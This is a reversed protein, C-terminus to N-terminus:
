QLQPLTVKIRTMYHICTYQSYFTTCLAIVAYIYPKYKNYECICIRIHICIYIYRYLIHLPLSANYSIVHKFAYNKTCFLTNFISNQTNTNGVGHPRQLSTISPNYRSKSYDDTATCKQTKLKCESVQKQNYAKPIWLYTQKFTHRDAYSVSTCFSIKQPNRARWEREASNRM